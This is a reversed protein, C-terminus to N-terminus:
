QSVSPCISRSRGNKGFDRPLLPDIVPPHQAPNDENLAIPQHPLMRGRGIARRLREVVAPLPPAPHTHEGRDHGLQRSLLLLGPDHHDVRGVRLGVPRRRTKRNLLPARIDSRVCSLRASSSVARRPPRSPGGSGSTGTPLGSRPSYRRAPKARMSGM